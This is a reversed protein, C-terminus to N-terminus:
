WFLCRLLIVELYRVLFIMKRRISWHGKMQKRHNDNARIWKHRESFNASSNTTFFIKKLFDTSDNVAEHKHCVNCVRTLNVFTYLNRMSILTSSFLTRVKWPWSSLELFRNLSGQLPKRNGLIRCKLPNIKDAYRIFSGLDIQKDFIEEM